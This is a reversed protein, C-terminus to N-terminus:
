IEAGMFGSEPCGKRSKPGRFAAERVLFVRFKGGLFAVERVIRPPLKVPGLVDWFPELLLYDLRMVRAVAFHEGNNHPRKYDCRRRGPITSTSSLTPRILQSYRQMFELKSRRHPIHFTSSNLIKVVDLFLMLFIHKRPSLALKIFMISQAIQLQFAAYLFLSATVASSLLCMRSVNESLRFKFVSSLFTSTSKPLAQTVRVCPPRMSSNSLKSAPNLLVRSCWELASPSPEPVALDLFEIGRARLKPTQTWILSPTPLSM